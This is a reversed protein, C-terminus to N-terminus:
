KGKKLFIYKVGLNFEFSCNRASEFSNNENATNVLGQNYRVSPTIILTKTIYRDQEIGLVLGFDSNNYNDLNQTAGNIDTVASRLYSVYFGGILNTSYVKNDFTSKNNMRKALINLTTYNLNLKEQFEVGEATYTRKYGSTSNLNINSEINFKHSVIFGITAGFSSGFDLLSNQKYKALPSNDKFKTMMGQKKFGTNIGLYIKRAYLGFMFYSSFRKSNFVIKNKDKKVLFDGSSYRHSVDRETLQHRNIDTYITRKNASKLEDLKDISIANYHKQNKHLSAYTNSGKSQRPNKSITTSINKKVNNITANVREKPTQNYPNTKNALPEKSGNKYSSNTKNSSSNNNNSNNTEQNKESQEGYASEYTSSNKNVTSNDITKNTSTVNSSAISGNKNSDYNNYALYSGVMLLLVASGRFVLNRWWIYQDYKNLSVVLKEWASATDLKTSLKEWITYHPREELKTVEKKYWESINKDTLPTSNELDESLSNWVNEDPEVNYNNLENRYWEEINEIDKM